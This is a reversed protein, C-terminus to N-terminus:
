DCSNLIGFLEGIFMEGVMSHQVTINLSNTIEMTTENIKSVITNNTELDPHIIWLGNDDANFDIINIQSTYL